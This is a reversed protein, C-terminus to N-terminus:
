ASLAPDSQLTLLLCQGLDRDDHGDLAAQDLLHPDAVADFKEGDGLPHAGRGISVGIARQEVLEQARVTAEARVCRRDLHEGAAPLGAALLQDVAVPDGAPRHAVHQDVVQALTLRRHVERRQLTVSVQEALQEPRVQLGMVGADVRQLQGAINGSGPLLPHHGFGPRSSGTIAPFLRPHRSSQVPAAHHGRDPREVEVDGLPGVVVRGSPSWETRQGTLALSTEWL